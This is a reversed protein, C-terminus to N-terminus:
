NKGTLGLILVARNKLQAADTHRKQKDRVQALLRLTTAIEARPEPVAGEQRALVDTLIDGAEDYRGQRLRLRGLNARTFWAEFRCEPCSRDVMAIAQTMNQSAMALKGDQMLIMGEQSLISAVRQHNPGLLREYIARAKRYLPLAREPRGAIRHLEAANGYALAADLSDEGSSRIALALAEEVLPLARDPDTGRMRISALGGLTRALHVSDPFDRRELPLVEEFLAAARGTDGLMMCAGAMLNIATLANENAIGITRRFLVLASEFEAVAERRRGQASLTQALNSETVARHADFAPGRSAWQAVSERYLREAEEFNRHEAAAIARANLDSASDAGPAAFVATLLLGLLRM